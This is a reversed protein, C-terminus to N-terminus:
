ILKLATLLCQVIEKLLLSVLEGSEVEESIVIQQLYQTLTLVWLDNTHM